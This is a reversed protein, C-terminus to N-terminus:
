SFYAQWRGEQLGYDLSAAAFLTSFRLTAPSKFNKYVSVGEM